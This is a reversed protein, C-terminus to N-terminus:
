GQKKQAKQFISAIVKDNMLKTIKVLQCIEGSTSELQKKLHSYEEAM